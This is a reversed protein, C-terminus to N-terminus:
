KDIPNPSDKGTLQLQTYESAPILEIEQYQSKPKRISLKTNKAKPDHQLMEYQAKPELCLDQYDQARRPFSQHLIEYQVVSRPELSEYKSPIQEYQHEVLSSILERLTSTYDEKECHEDSELAKMIEENFEIVFKFLEDLAALRGFSINLDQFHEHVYLKLDDKKVSAQDKVERFCRQLQAKCSSIEEHLETFNVNTNESCIETLANVLDEAFKETDDVLEFDFLDQPNRLIKTWLPLHLSDCKLKQNMDGYDIGCEEALSDLFDFMYKVPVPYKSHRQIDMTLMQVFVSKIKQKVTDKLINGPKKDVEEQIAQFLSLISKGITTKIYPYLTVAFWIALLKETISDNRRFVSMKAMRANTVADALLVKLLGTLYYMREEKQLVVTLLCGVVKKQDTTMRSQQELTRVFALCFSKDVLLCYFKELCKSRSNDHHLTKNVVADCNTCEDYVMIAAYKSFESFPHGTQQRPTSTSKVPARQIFAARAEIKIEVESILKDLKRNRLYTTLIIVGAVLLVVVYAIVFGAIM